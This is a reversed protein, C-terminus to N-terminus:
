TVREKTAARIKLATAVTEVVGRWDGPRSQRFLRMGPYWPSDTRSMLWRWESATHLLTWTEVGLAGALHVVATDTSILLDLNCLLAASEAFDTLEPDLNEIGPNDALGTLERAPPGKQVSYFVVGPVSLLPRLDALTCARNRNAAAEPNGSWSIGVRLEPPSQRRSGLRQSWKEMLAPDPHLYPITKPITALTTNFLAPLDLLPLHRDYDFPPPSDDGPKRAVVRDALGSDRFLRLLEPKCELLVTVGRQRLEPLYRSFMLADGFGQETYVYLRKGAIDDGQWRPAPCVRPSMDDMKWRWAYERWGEEFRELMLLSFARATHLKASDPTTTLAQQFFELAQEHKGYEQSIVGLNYLAVTQGPDLHVAQEYCGVAELHRGQNFRLNGLNVHAAAFGPQFRIATMYHNEAEVMQEMRVLAEALHFHFYPQGPKLRIANRFFKVALELRGHRSAVMALLYSAGGNAPEMQFVRNALVGARALDGKNYSAMASNLLENASEEQNM